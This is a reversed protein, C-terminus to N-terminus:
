LFRRIKIKKKKDSGINELSYKEIKNSKAWQHASEDSKFAKPKIDSRKKLFRKPRLKNIKFKRKERTHIKPM